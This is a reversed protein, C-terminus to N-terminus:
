SDGIGRSSNISVTSRTIGYRAYMERSDRTWITKPHKKPQFQMKHIPTKTNTTVLSQDHHSTENRSSYIEVQWHVLILLPVNRKCSPWDLHLLIYYRFAMFILFEEWNTTDDFVFV